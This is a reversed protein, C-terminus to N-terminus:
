EASYSLVPAPEPAVHFRLLVRTCFLVPQYAREARAALRKARAAPERQTDLFDRIGFADRVDPVADPERALV